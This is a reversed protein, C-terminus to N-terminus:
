NKRDDKIEETRYTDPILDLLKMASAVPKNVELYHKLMIALRWTSGRSQMICKDTEKKEDEGLNFASLIIANDSLNCLEDALRNAKEFKDTM